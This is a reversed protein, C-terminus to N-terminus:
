SWPTVPRVRRQGDVILDIREDFFAVLGRVPTGDGIPDPYSWALDPVNRGPLTVTSYSAEGKYACWTRTATPTLEVHVDDPPLYYRTPLLTEFLLMPRSSEALVTGDLEIRVHRSSALVDIRHFPDRPHSVNRENEEYWADFAGFDLVVYDALDPDEPRFGAGAHVGGGTTVDVSQGVATHVDFPISPDLVPRQTVDPLAVGVDDGAVVSPAAAPVLRARVDEVPVAYSPVVRRPEWLLVARTSDVVTIGDLEARIRKATPEHRLRGIGSMLLERVRASM